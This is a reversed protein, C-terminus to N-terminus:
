KNYEQVEEDTAAEVNTLQQTIESVSGKIQDFDGGSPAEDKETDLKQLAQKTSAETFMMYQQRKNSLENADDLTVKANDLKKKLAKQRGKMEVLVDAIEKADASSPTEAHEKEKASIEDELQVMQAKVTAHATTALELNGLQATVDHSAEQAKELDEQAKKIDENANPKPPGPAVDPNGVLMQKEEKEEKDLKAQEVAISKSHKEKMDGM